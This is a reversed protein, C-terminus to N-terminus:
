LPMLLLCFLDPLVRWYDRFDTKGLKFKRWRESLSGKPDYTKFGKGFAKRILSFAEQRNHVLRVNQSGAGNRLKFVKPFDANRAWQLAENRSYFIVTNVLPAGISELLYKQGVKDDFHWVTNFDPFTKMGSAEISYLLQKAFLIAQPSNQSFHWMFFDCGKLQKIIGSKYCDVLKYPIQNENCYTIWRDSFSQKVTHIALTM